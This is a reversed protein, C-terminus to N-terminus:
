RPGAPQGSCGYQQYERRHQRRDAVAGPHHDDVPEDTGPDAPPPIVPNQADHHEPQEQLRHAGVRHSGASVANAAVITAIATWEVADLGQGLFVLGATAAVVPNVSMFVGFFHAPVRRLALVDVLFPVVSSLVGAAAACWLATPTLPQRVLVVIGVPVFLLGSLGAAVAPGEVGPLRSGVSRNLLIYSAWCAAAVLGLGIGLYDTTPQPRTLAVVGVAAVAACALDLARRSTSLAVALPGLFELTVALGLGIRDIAAYLTLNMIGFVLALLLIPWWQRWTYSRVRPRGIALLALAAIWQRVAVVGAPGLVPFASAGIAAGAQNSLGSGLMMAMGTRM